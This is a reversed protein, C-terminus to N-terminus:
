FITRAIVEEQQERSLKIFHVAYGSVRITLQPYKEPHEMAEQLIERDFVNVNKHHGGQKFYGDLLAILNDVRAQPDPGLARPTISFTYSIGDLADQYPIKAVSSLAALAGKRDRGHMPNAGPAFPEGAQRGDPTAGTKHGYVVNSTITLVSLTHVANRYTPYRRLAEMFTQVLEVALRDVRDDNNGFAPYAGEISFERAIGRDDRRARVRAYKMAALSDATVSLGALGFAMFRGVLSDHLAMQLSEYAYKDHMYHIINMVEVYKSALWDLVRRFAPWVERYDLVEERGRPLYFVPAIKEGTLEDVGQNLTLLLAKPVNCRAGFFQMQKGLRMASVCCAIAYDDGFIPRMLDDNEYQVASTDISVRACYEKFPRPLDAAWLVTMNPEPAPGLNYLTQLFRYTTRTVLPRGDLAMGGLAETVWNPDGAFLENYSRTRLHRTLRLKIVFDDILQQAQEETLRGAHLDRELYIDLFTSVRGLSMAAGNQQKIAGLYALYLWQIADRADAAPRSLDFGYGAAMKKLDELSNVQQRIEERLQITDRTIRQLVPLERIDAVKAAILRDVGYLPVRRYDGIIRGRGYADPLGTIVGSRRLALMEDTYVAFVGDNHTTRYETFIRCVEPDVDEGFEACASRAMRLGGFPNVARKLPEDTQLGVIIELDRDIYGPPHSTITIPTRADVKYVGGRRHEEQLLELCKNWLKSTRPTPGTLFSSDGLYPTYNTIIFDRVNIEEQWPGPKFDPTTM